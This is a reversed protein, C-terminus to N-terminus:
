FNLLFKKIIFSNGKFCTLFLDYNNLKIALGFNKFKPITKTMLHYFNSVTSFHVENCNSMFDIYSNKVKEFEQSLNFFFNM